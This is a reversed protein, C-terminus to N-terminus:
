EDRRPRPLVRAPTPPCTAPPPACNPPLPTPSRSATASARSRPTSAPWCTFRPPQRLATSTSSAASSRATRAAHRPTEPSCCGTGPLYLAVSGPTHGAVAVAVAGDGFGLEDGDAIERDIRPPTVPEAPLQRMVQGYIPREWDALDPAPGVAGARIFPADAHHALVEVEGWGAIDAAAGIHDAHFHTLVLRRLDAPQYGSRRIADAILPASGPLGTDVLTLGDRDHWLYAHGAPIRIFRLRPLLEIVDMRCRYAASPRAHGADAALLDAAPLVAATATRAKRRPEHSASNASRAASASPPMHTRPDRHRKSWVKLVAPYDDASVQRWTRSRLAAVAVSLADNTDNKNTDGAQLRVRSALKPQVDLVREGAAVLHQALLHGLGRAGEVAWTRQPWAAAWEVLKGAQAASARVRLEGLPEEAPGIVVATHSGKHPDVGIMVAAM